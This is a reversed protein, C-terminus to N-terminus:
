RLPSTAATGPVVYSAGFEEYGPLMVQIWVSNGSATSFTYTSAGNSEIGAVETGLSGAPTNDLDYIRVEAGILSVNAAVTISVGSNVTTSAGSGNLYTPTNGGSVTITVAGGSNNYIAANAAGNAGYGSFNLSSFTYNGPTNIVIANVFDAGYTFTSDSINNLNAGAGQQIQSNSFNCGVITGGNFVHAAKTYGSDAITGLYATVKGKSFSAGAANFTTRADTLIQWQAGLASESKVTLGDATVTHTRGTNAKFDLINWNQITAAPFSKFVVTADILSSVLNNSETGLGFQLKGVLSYIDNGGSIFGYSNTKTQDANLFDILTLTDSALGTGTLKTGLRIADNFLNNLSTTIGTVQRTIFGVNKLTTLTLTGASLDAAASPDIVYCKWGPTKPLTDGGDVRWRKYNTTSWATTSTTSTNTLGIDIGDSAKAACNGSTVNLLWIFVLKATADFVATSNFHGGVDTAGSAAGCKYAICGTGQAHGDAELAPNGSSTGNLRTFTGNTTTTDASTVTTQDSTITIAM